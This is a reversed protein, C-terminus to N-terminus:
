TKPKTRKKKATTSKKTLHNKQSYSLFPGSNFWHRKQKESYSKV